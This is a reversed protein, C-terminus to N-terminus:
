YISLTQVRVHSPKRNSVGGEEGFVQLLDRRTAGPKITSTLRIVGDIWETHERDVEYDRQASGTTEQPPDDLDRLTVSYYLETKAYLETEM